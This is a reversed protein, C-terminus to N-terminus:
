ILPPYFICLLFLDDEGTNVIGHQIEREALLVDGECIEVELNGAKGMGRGSIVFHAENNNEHAHKNISGGPKVRVHYISMHPWDINTVLDKAFSNEGVEIENWNKNFSKILNEMRM